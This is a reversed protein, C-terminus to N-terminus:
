FAKRGRMEDVSLAGPGISMLLCLGAMISLGQVFEYRMIERMYTGSATWFASNLINHFFYLALLISGSIELHFGVLVALIVPVAFITLVTGLTTLFELAFLVLLIRSALQMYAATQKKNPAHAGDLLGLPLASQGGAIRTQAGILILSGSLCLNRVLFGLNGSGIPSHRGYLAQQYCVCFLLLYSGHTEFKGRAIRRQGVVLAVGVFSVAVNAILLAIAFWAPMSYQHRLFDAQHTLEFMVRVGDEMFTAVLLLRVLTPLYPATDKRLKRASAMVSTTKAKAGGVNGSGVISPQMGPGRSAHMSSAAHTGPGPPGQVHPAYDATGRPHMGVGGMGGNMGVSNM